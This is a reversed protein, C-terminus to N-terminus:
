SKSLSSNIIEILSRPAVPKTLCAHILTPDQGLDPSAEGSLLIVVLDPKQAKARRVLEMGKGDPLNYDVIMLDCPHAQLTELAAAATAAGRVVYGAEELIDQATERINPDDDVILLRGGM